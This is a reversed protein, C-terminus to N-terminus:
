PKPKWNLIVTIPSTIVEGTLTNMLFRLGDPSVVYQPGPLGAAWGGVRTMFLRVPTGAEVTESTAGLRIPVAILQGDRAIYFLEKGDPRWRVQDGGDSSIRIEDGSRQAFPRVYVEYRGSKISVYAIWKGDPSFQGGHEEFDTQVVPFPKQDGDLPLAWIDLNRFPDISNYLLFRGDPSWDSVFKNQATQLLLAEESGAGSTSKQYLDLVGKRNSNFVIRSGDRSWLPIGDDASDFTFRTPVGREVDLLWDDLNGNTRRYLAVRRGDPSLSPSLQTSPFPAGVSALHHGSRDFWALQRESGGASGTRYAIPGAASTSVAMRLALASTVQEAVPFPTGAGALQTRDFRQAFLTGQRMFLLHDQAAYVAPFDADLLRRTESGDLQGVYVGHPERGSPAWYLFHRGDPLFQPLYHAGQQTGLQTALAPDGGRDSIRLIPTGLSSFLIVGDRSWTGGVGGPANALMRPSGGDIGIRRLQGYAFFAVSRSDPSWFPFSAGDTEPLPRASVSNFPRLWLHSDGDSTAVFALTQGDPSIALSTPDTTPPTNIEVRMEALPTASPAAGLRGLLIAAAVVLSLGAVVWAIHLRASPVPPRAADAVVGGGEAVWRLEEELDRATQWRAEPDKALCRRVVHDLAPPSLPQSAAIPPPDDKLIAGILSVQSGGQFAQKGTAMEYVLAGFAFIDARADADKGELQEPAMYQFTGLITGQATLPASMTPASLNGPNFGQAPGTAKALGFDLLKALPSGQRAAGSKVLMVNGPKLDRHTIGARHAADLASAIQIALTLAENIPLGGKAIRDRLTEGELYQIVLFDIGNERGVDYLACIHPHDLSSISRAERDFRKRFQPDAALAEPLVKIAVTRDLRTDRAKYVEGMGGVGLPSIIEYPGLRDGAALAM